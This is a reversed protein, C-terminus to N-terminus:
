WSTGSLARYAGPTMGTLRKFARHLLAHEGFGVRESIATVSLAPQTTLLHRAELIRRHLVYQKISMGTHRKFCRSLYDRSYGYRTEIEDLPLPEHFHLNIWRVLGRLTSALISNEAPVPHPPHANARQLWVLFERLMLRVMTQWDPPQRRLEEQIRQLILDLAASESPNLVLRRPSERLMERAHSELALWDLLLHLSIRENTEGPAPLFRHVQNPPIVIVSNPAFPHLEGEILYNGHGQRILHAEFARHYALGYRPDKPQRWTIVRVPCARHPFVIEEKHRRSNM